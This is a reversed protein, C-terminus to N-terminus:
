TPTMFDWDSPILTPPQGIVIAIELLSALPIEAPDGDYLTGNLYVHILVDPACYEGVCSADLRLGWETFFEGLLYAPHNATKSESHVIGSPDHTHLPSLCVSPCTAVQFDHATGDPTVTDVVGSAKTDIGIGGPVTIPVGDVFVDLHAHNHTTLYEATEAVLGAQQVLAMPDAPAPWSPQTLPASSPYQVSALPAACATLIMLAAGGVALPRWGSARGRSGNAQVHRM